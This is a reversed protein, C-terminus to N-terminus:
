YSIHKREIVKFFNNPGVSYGFCLWLFLESNIAINHLLIGTQTCKFAETSLFRTKSRSFVCLCVYVFFCFLLFNYHLKMLSFTYKLCDNDDDNRIIDRLVGSAM